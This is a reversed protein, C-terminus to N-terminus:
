YTHPKAKDSSFSKVFERSFSRLEQIKELEYTKGVGHEL